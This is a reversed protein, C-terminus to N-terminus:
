KPRTLGVLIEVERKIRGPNYGRGVKLADCFINTTLTKGAGAAVKGRFGNRAAAGNGERTVKGSCLSALTEV